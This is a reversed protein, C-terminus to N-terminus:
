SMYSFLKFTDYFACVDAYTGTIYM